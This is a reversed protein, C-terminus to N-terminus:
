WNKLTKVMAAAAKDKQVKDQVKMEDSALAELLRRADEQSIKQESQNEQKDQNQNQQNQDDKQQNQDDSRFLM